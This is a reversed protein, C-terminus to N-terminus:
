YEVIVTEINRGGHTSIDKTRSMVRGKCTVRTAHAGECVHLAVVRPRAHGLRNAAVNLSAVSATVDLRRAVFGESKQLWELNRIPWPSGYGHVEDDLQRGRVPIIRNQDDAVTERAVRM